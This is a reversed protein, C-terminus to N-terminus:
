GEYNFIHESFFISKKSLKKLTGLRIISKGSIATCDLDSVFTECISQKKQTISSTNM